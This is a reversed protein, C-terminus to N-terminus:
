GQFESEGDCLRGLEWVFVWLEQDYHLCPFFLICAVLVLLFDIAHQICLNSLMNRKFGATSPWDAPRNSLEYTGVDNGALSRSSNYVLGSIVTLAIYPPFNVFYALCVLYVLRRGTPKIM